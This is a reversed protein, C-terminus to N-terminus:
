GCGFALSPEVLDAGVGLGHGGVQGIQCGEHEAGTYSDAFRQTQEPGLDVQHRPLSLDSM